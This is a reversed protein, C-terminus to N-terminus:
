ATVFAGGRNIDVANRREEGGGLGAADREDRDRVVGGDRAVVRM